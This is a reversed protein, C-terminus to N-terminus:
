LLTIYIKDLKSTNGAVNIGDISRIEFIEKITAKIKKIFVLINRAKANNAARIILFL